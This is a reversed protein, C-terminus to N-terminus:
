NADYNLFIILTSCYLNEESVYIKWSYAKPYLLDMRKRVQQLGIGSGSQDQENKPHYSNRIDCIVKEGQVERITISIVDNEEGSIGHKFANEILSIFLLPAIQTTSDEAVDFVVNVKVNDSLRIRMLRIYNKLFEIEQTLPVFTDNNEYLVYRLLKGLDYVAQQAMDKDFAILAYINNLTNLLFHPNLQSRLHILEMQTRARQEEQRVEEKEAFRLNLRIVVSSFVTLVIVFSDRLLVVIPFAIIKEAHHPPPEGKIPLPLIYRDKWFHLIYIDLL